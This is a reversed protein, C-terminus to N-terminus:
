ESTALDAQSASTEFGTARAGVIKAGEIPRGLDLELLCRSGEGSRELFGVERLTDLLVGNRSTPEYGAFLRDYNRGVLYNAIWQFWAHEVKKKAIRCSIVLDRLMARTAGVEVSAFGVIGYDGFRDTCALAIALISPDALLQQFEAREYRRTSLNLQNSRQILELCRSIHAEAIPKFLHAQMACSRLFSDYDEGYSSAIEKRKGEALYSLRRARTEANIPVDFEPRELLTGVETEAFVRVQPWERTIEDREFASDDIVAFTDININLEDAIAKLNRSKRGWNIAPSIFYDRLGLKSIIEMAPGFDNKSVISQIIGRQDLANVLDVAERRVRVAGPGEEALIGEWLTNDLDWVVCKVKDAAKPQRELSQVDARVPAERYRVFDLWTFLLRLEADHDPYIRVLGDRDVMDIQMEAFPIHFTNYGLALDLVRRYRPRGAQVVELILGAPGDQPLFVQVLFEDFPREERLYGVGRHRLVYERALNYAGNLRCKPSLAKLARSVAKVMALVQLDLQTTKRLHAVSAAGFGLKSELQGWRRFKIEAGYDFPGRVNFNPFIGYEFRACKKDARAIYLPCVRYCDPIACEVCHESWFLMSVREITDLDIAALPGAPSLGGDPPRAAWDIEWM